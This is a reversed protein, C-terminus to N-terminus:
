RSSRRRQFSFVKKGGEV